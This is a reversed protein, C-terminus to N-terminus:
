IKRVAEALEPRELTSTVSLLNALKEVESRHNQILERAAVYAAELRANVRGAIDRRQMLIPRHRELHRHLLPADKGFGFATEMRLALNAAVALDSQPDGGSGAAHSGLLVEEPPTGQAVLQAHLWNETEAAPTTDSAIMGSKAADDITILTITGLRLVQLAIAHGGEHM